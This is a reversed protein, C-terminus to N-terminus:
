NNLQKTQLILLQMQFLCIFLHQLFVVPSLAFNVLIVIVVDVQPVIKDCFTILTIPKCFHSFVIEERTINQLSCVPTTYFM